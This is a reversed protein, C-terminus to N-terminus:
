LKEGLTAYARRVVEATLDVRYEYPEIGIRPFRLEIRGNADVSVGVHRREDFDRHNAATLIRAKGGRVTLRTIASTNTISV